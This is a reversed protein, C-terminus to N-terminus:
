GCCPRASRRGRGFPGAPRAAMTAYVNAVTFVVEGGGAALAEVAAAVEDRCTPFVLKREGLYFGQGPFGCLNARPPVVVLHCSALLRGENLGVCFIVHGSEEHRGSRHCDARGDRGKMPLASRVRV